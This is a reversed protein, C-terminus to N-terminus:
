KQSLADKFVPLALVISNQQHGFGLWHFCTHGYDLILSNAM